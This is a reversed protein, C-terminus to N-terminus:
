VEHRRGSSAAEGIDCDRGIKELTVRFRACAMHECGIAASRRYILGSAWIPSGKYTPGGGQMDPDVRLQDAISM